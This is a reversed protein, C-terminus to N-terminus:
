TANTEEEEKRKKKKEKKEKKEKRKKKKRKEEEEKTQMTAPENLQDTIAHNRCISCLDKAWKHRDM